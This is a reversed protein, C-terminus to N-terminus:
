WEATCLEKKAQGYNKKRGTNKRGIMRNKHMEFSIKRSLNVNYEMGNM